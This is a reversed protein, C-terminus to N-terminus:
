NKGQRQRLIAAVGRVNCAEMFEYVDLEQGFEKEIEFLIEIAVVSDGGLDLFDDHVGIRNLNLARTWITLLREEVPDAPPEYVTCAGAAVASVVRDADLTDGTLPLTDVPLVGALGCDAGLRQWVHERLEPGCVYESYEAVGIAVDRGNHRITTALARHVAPHATLVSAYQALDGM